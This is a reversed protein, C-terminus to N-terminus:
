NVQGTVTGIETHDLGGSNYVIAIKISYANGPKLVPTTEFEIQRSEGPKLVLDVPSYSTSQDGITATITRITLPTSLRGNELNLIFKGDASKLEWDIPTGLVQFGTVTRGAFMLPNFLGLGYFAAALIVVIFIAWGYSMLYEMASQAKERAFKRM